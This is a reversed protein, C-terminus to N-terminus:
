KMGWNELLRELRDQDFSTKMRFKEIWPKAALTDKDLIYTGILELMGDEFEPSYKMLRELCIKSNEMDDMSYYMLYRHYDLFPDKNIKHDLDNVAKLANVYDKNLLYYNLRLLPINAENPYLSEYEKLAENYKEADLGACILLKTLKLVKLEQMDDPISNFLELAEEYKGKVALAKIKPIVLLWKNKDDHNNRSEIEEMQINVLKITESLKEGTTYVYADAIAVKNGKKILEFDHYNINGDDYMRFVLHQIGSDEYQRVLAYWGKSSLSNLISRGLNM